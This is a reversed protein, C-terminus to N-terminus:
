FLHHKFYESQYHYISNFMRKQFSSNARVIFSENKKMNGTLNVIGQSCNSRIWGANCGDSCHGEVHHCLKDICNSSCKASCNGGFFGRHCGKMIYM